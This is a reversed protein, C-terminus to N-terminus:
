GDISSAAREAGAEAESLARVLQQLARRVKPSKVQGLASALEILEPPHQLAPLREPSGDPGEGLLQAAPVGLHAAVQVLKSASVRNTGQEYKQLQQFTVGAATALQTQSLGRTKRLLRIRRGVEVDVETPERSM